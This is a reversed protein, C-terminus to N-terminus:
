LHVEQSFMNNVGRAAGARYAVVIQM